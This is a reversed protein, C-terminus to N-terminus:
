ALSEHCLNSEQILRTRIELHFDGTFIYCIYMHIYKPLDNKQKEDLRLPESISLPSSDVSNSVLVSSEVPVGLM